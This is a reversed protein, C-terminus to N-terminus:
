ARPLEYLWAYAQSIRKMGIKENIRMMAANEDAVSTGILTLRPWREAAAGVAARKVLAGLGRGRHSNRVVTVEQSAIEPRESRHQTITSLAVGVGHEDLLLATISRLGSSRAIAEGSRLREATWPSPDTIIGGSPVDQEAIDHLECLTPVVHDPAGDETFVLCTLGRESLATRDLLPERRDVAISYQVEHHVARHGQAALFRPVPAESPTIETGFTLWTSLHERRLTRAIRYLTTLCEELVRQAQHGLSHGPLPLLDADLDVLWWLTSTDNQLPLTLRLYALTDYEHFWAPDEGTSPLTPYGLPDLPLDKPLEGAPLDLAILFISQQEPTPRLSELFREATSAQLDSGTAEMLALNRLFTRNIVPTSPGEADARETLQAADDRPAPEAVRFWTMM